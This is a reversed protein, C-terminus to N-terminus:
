AVRLGAVVRPMAALRELISVVPSNREDHAVQAGLRKANAAFVPEEILRRLAAAIAAAESSAPLSLGAGRHTVRVANDEQDRGHPLVLMPKGAALAKMVTGHGGHTVVFDAWAMALGHPASDVIQVNAPASLENAHLAGGLTVIADIPLAAMSDIVRQVCGAHDQFSSSFAVLARVRDNGAAPPSWAKAWSPEGLQAGVYTMHPPMVEPAFDFARSTGLLTMAAARHQDALHALPALGHEARLANFHELGGDLLRHVDNTVAEHLKRDEEAAAPAFGPGLPPIGPVPVFSVQATFLALPQDLAECAMQVGFLFDSAVVLDAPERQLEEYIDRAYGGAGGVLVIDLLMKIGEAPSTAEWDRVFENERGRAPKNPANIWSQFEAGAKEADDRGSADSMMRVRHGARVLKAAVTAMPALTGGADLTALLFSKTEAKSMKM